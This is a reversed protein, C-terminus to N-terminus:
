QLYRIYLKPFTLKENRFTWLLDAGAIEGGRRAPKGPRGSPYCRGPCLRGSLAIIACVLPAQGHLDSPPQPAEAKFPVLRCEAFVVDVGLDERLEGGLVESLHADGRNPM